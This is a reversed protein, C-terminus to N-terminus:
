KRAATLHSSGLYRGLQIVAKLSLKMVITESAPLPSSVLFRCVQQKEKLTQGRVKAQAVEESQVFM